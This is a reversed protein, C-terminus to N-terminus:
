FSMIERNLSDTRQSSNINVFKDIAKKMDEIKLDNMDWVKPPHSAAHLVITEESNWRPGWKVSNKLEGSQRYVCILKKNLARLM